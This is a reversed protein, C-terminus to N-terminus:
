AGGGFGGGGDGLGGGGLGGGLGGGGLGGGGLGGGLGGGGLGGVGGGGLGGGLGGGGLGGGSTVASANSSSADITTAGPAHANTGESCGTKTDPSPAPMVTPAVRLVCVDSKACSMRSPPFTVEGANTCFSSSSRTRTHVGRMSPNLSVNVREYPSCLRVTM